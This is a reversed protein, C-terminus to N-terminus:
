GRAEELMRTVKEIDSPRAVIASQGCARLEVLAAFRPQSLRGRDPEAFLWLVRPRRVLLLDPEWEAPCARVHWGHLEALEGLRWRWAHRSLTPWSARLSSRLSSDFPGVFTM